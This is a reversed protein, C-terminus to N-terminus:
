KSLVATAKPNILSHPFGPAQKYSTKTVTFVYLLGGSPSVGYLHNHNDWFIQSINHVALFGTYATIPKSGDFFFVQLGGDGAVALLDGAPSTAMDNVEGVEATLMNQSTSNTTLNGSSDATYVALWAPPSPPGQLKWIWQSPWIEPPTPRLRRWVIAAIPSATRM